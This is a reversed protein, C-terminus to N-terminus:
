ASGWSGSSAIGSTPSVELIKGCYEPFEAELRHRYGESVVVREVDEPTFVLNGHKRWERELYFNDPHDDPLESDFPKIFALLDRLLVDDVTAVAEEVSEPASGFSRQRPSSSAEGKVVLQKYARYVSSMNALLSAGYPSLHDNSTLPVYMVPRAGYRTLYSRRFSLGFHGYKEMHIQLHDKPIDCFCTVEPVILKEDTLSGDWRMTIRTNGWGVEHPPHSVCGAELVKGLIRFNETDNRPEKHGVFHYLEPSTYGSHEVVM